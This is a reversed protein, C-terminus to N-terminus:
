RRIRTADPAIQRHGQRVAEAAVRRAIEGNSLGSAAVWLALHPNSSRSPVKAEGKGVSMVSRPLKAM